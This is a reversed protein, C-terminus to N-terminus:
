RQGSLGGFFFYTGWDGGSNEHYDVTYSPGDQQDPTLTASQMGGEATPLYAISRHFAAQQWGDAAPRGSGMQGTQSQGIQGCVEGGFDISEAAQSLQGSGFLQRPYYGIAVPEEETGQLFLWWGTDDLQWQMLFGNQDGGPGSTQLSGGIVWSNNTQHFGDQGPRRSLNYSGTNQYGDATFYLFLRTTLQSENYLGPYVHWGGEVTQLPTTLGGAAWWQQSLSFVGPSPNPTWTNLWSRGGFNQLPRNVAHAYAHIAGGVVQMPAQQGAGGQAGAVPGARRGSGLSPHRGGDPSKLFFASLGGARSIRDLTVRVVPVYGPPCFMQNGFLDQRGEELQRPVAARRHAPAGPAEALAPPPPQQEQMKICDIHLGGADVFTNCVDANAYYSLIHNKIRDVEAAPLGGDAIAPPLGRARAGAVFAAQNAGPQAASTQELFQDFPLFAPM